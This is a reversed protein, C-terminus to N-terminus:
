DSGTFAMRYDASQGWKRAEKDFQVPRSDILTMREPSANEFAARLADAITMVELVSEGWTNIQFRLFELRSRGEMHYIPVTGVRQYTVMPFMARRVGGAPHFRQDILATLGADSRAIEVLRTEPFNM